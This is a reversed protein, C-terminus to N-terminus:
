AAGGVPVNLGGENLKIAKNIKMARNMQVVARNLALETVLMDLAGYLDGVEYALRERNSGKEPEYPDINDEGFRAMKMLIQNVEAGEEIVLAQALEPLTLRGM